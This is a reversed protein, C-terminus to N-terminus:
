RVPIRNIETGFGLVVYRGSVWGEISGYRVLYWTTTANRALIRASGGRPILGLWRARINDDARINLNATTTLYYNTAPLQTIDRTYGGDLVPVSAVNVTYVYGASVWGVTGRVNVRYWSSDTTRGLLPYTEGFAIRTLVNSGDLTPADRVNLRWARVTVTANYSPQPQPTPQPQPPFVIQGSYTTLAYEIFANGTFERYEVRITHYGPSLQVLRRYTLNQFFDWQNLYLVGDFYVRVGDDARVSLQYPNGDFYQNRTWRVSFHDAPLSLAPSGTGWDHNPGNDTVVYATTGSLDNNPFYAASWAGGPESVPQINTPFRPGRPNTGMNTYDVYLYANGSHERYDIQVHWVGTNVTVDTQLIQGPQPQYFTDIRKQFDFYMTFGDDALVWFRYTGATLYLDTTVRASFYDNPVGAGPAGTGWNFAVRDTYQTWAAPEMLYFNNFFEAKWNADQAQAGGAGISTLVLAIALLVLLGGSRKISLM